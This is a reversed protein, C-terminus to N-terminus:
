MAHTSLRKLQTPSQAVRHVIAWWAERDLPNELCYYQIPNDHGGEYM